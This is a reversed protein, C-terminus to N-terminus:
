LSRRLSRYVRHGFGMPREDRALAQKLSPHINEFSAIADLMDLMPGPAGGRLPGKPACLAGVVSSLLGARTSAIVRARSPRHTSDRPRCRQRSPNRARACGRGTCERWTNHASIQQM